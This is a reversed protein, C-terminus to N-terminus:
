PKADKFIETTTADGTLKRMGHRADILKVALLVNGIMSMCFLFLLLYCANEIRRYNLESQGYREAMSHYFDREIEMDRKALYNENRLMQMLGDRKHCEPCILM